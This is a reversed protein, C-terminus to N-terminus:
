FHDLECGNVVTWYEVNAIWIWGKLLFHNAGYRVVTDVAIRVNCKEEM